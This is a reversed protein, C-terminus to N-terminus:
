INFLFLKNWYVATKLIYLSQLLENFILMKISLFIVDDENVQSSSKVCYEM